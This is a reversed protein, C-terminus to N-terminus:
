TKYVACAGETESVQVQTIEIREDNLKESLGDFIIKAINEATPNLVDFPSLQNLYEHDFTEVVEKLIKKLTKFDVVMGNEDLTEAKAYARVLWNHGHLNECKGEYGRLNHAGSFTTEKFVEYM